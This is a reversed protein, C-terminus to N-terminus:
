NIYITETENTEVVTAGILEMGATDSYAWTPLDIEGPLETDGSYDLWIGTERCKALDRLQKGLTIEGLEIAAASIQRVNILLIDGREIAIFYFSHIDLNNLNALKLYMAAQVHYRFNHISHSLGKNSADATTKIDAIYGQGIFDARGKIPLGTERHVGFM